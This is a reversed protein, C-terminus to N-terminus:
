TKRNYFEDVVEKYTAPDEKRLAVREEDTMEGWGKREVRGGDSKGAGGAGNAKSGSLIPAFLENGKIEKRLDDISMASPNGEADLVKVVPKGDRVETKLRGKIHPLLLDAHGPLALDAALKRAESGSTIDTMMQEYQQLKGTLEAETAKVKEAWSKELSELDGDKKAREMAAQEAAQKAKSKEEALERNKAELKAISEKLSELEEPTVSPVEKTETETETETETQQVEDTM